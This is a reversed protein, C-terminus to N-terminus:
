FSPKAPSPMSSSSPLTRQMQPNPMSAPQRCALSLSVQGQGQGQGSCIGRMSLLSSTCASASLTAAKKEAVQAGPLLSSPGRSAPPLQSPM